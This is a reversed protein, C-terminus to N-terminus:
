YMWTVEDAEEVGELMEQYNKIPLIVSAHKGNKTVIEPQAKAKMEDVGVQWEDALGDRGSGELKCASRGANRRAYECRAARGRIRRIGRSIKPFGCDAQNGHRDQLVFCSHQVAVDKFL